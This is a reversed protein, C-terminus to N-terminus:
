GRLLAKAISANVAQEAAASAKQRNSDTKATEDQLKQVTQERDLEAKMQEQLMSQEQNQFQQEQLMSQEQQEIVGGLASANLSSMPSVTNPM